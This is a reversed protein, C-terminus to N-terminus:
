PGLPGWYALSLWITAVTQCFGAQLLGGKLGSAQKVPRVYFRMRRCGSM